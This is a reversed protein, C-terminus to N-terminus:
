EKIIFANPMWGWNWTNVKINPLVEKVALTEGPAVDFNYQDFVIIGGVEMRQWFVPLANKVVDYLGADFFVLKFRLHKHQEFFDHIEEGSLDLDHIKLIHSLKQAAILQTLRKKSESYCGPNVHKREEESPDGGAFWDFGHVQTLSNPEFIQCLKAFLLSGAGKYVGLEAIHGAIGQTMKFSEYLTLYRALTLHGAFAPFYHILDDESYNLSKIVELGNYYDNKLHSFKSSEFEGPIYDPQSQIKADCKSKKKFSM